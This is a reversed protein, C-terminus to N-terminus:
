LHLYEEVQKTCKKRFFCHFYLQNRYSYLILLSNVKDELMNKRAKKKMGDYLAHLQKATRKGSQCNANFKEKILEWTENKMKTNCADTRKNEIVHKYQQTIEFLVNKDFDTFNKSRKQVNEKEDM